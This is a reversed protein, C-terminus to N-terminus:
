RDAEDDPLPYGAAELSRCLDDPDLDYHTDAAEYWNDVVELIRAADPSLKPGPITVSPDVASLTAALCHRAGLAETGPDDCYAILDDLAALARRSDAILRDTDTM